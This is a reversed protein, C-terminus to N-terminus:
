QRVLAICVQAILRSSEVVPREYGKQILPVGAATPAAQPAQVFPTTCSNPGVPPCGGGYHSNAKLITKVATHIYFREILRCARGSCCKKKYNIHFNSDVTLCTKSKGRARTGRLFKALLAVRVQYEVTAGRMGANTRRRTCQSIGRGLPQSTKRPQWIKRLKRKLAQELQRKHPTSSGNTCALHGGIDPQRPAQM